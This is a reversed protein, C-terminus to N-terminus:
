YKYIQEGTTLEHIHVIAYAAYVTNPYESIIENFIAVAASRHDDSRTIEYLVRELYGTESLAMVYEDTEPYKACFARWMALEEAIIEVSDHWPLNMIRYINILRYQAKATFPSDPFERVIVRYIDGNYYHQHISENLEIGPFSDGRSAMADYSQGLYYLAEPLYSSADFYRSFIELLRAAKEYEGDDFYGRSFIFLEHEGIGSNLDVIVNRDLEGFVTDYKIQYRETADDVIDVMDGTNLIRMKDDDGYFLVNDVILAGPSSSLVIALLAPIM